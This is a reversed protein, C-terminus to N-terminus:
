DQINDYLNSAEEIISIIDEQTKSTWVKEELNIFDKSVAKGQNSIILKILVTSLMRKGLLKPVPVFNVYREQAAYQFPDGYKQCNDFAKKALEEYKMAPDM